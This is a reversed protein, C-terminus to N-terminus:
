AQSLLEIKWKWVLNLCLHWRSFEWLNIASPLIIHMAWMPFLSLQQSRRLNVDEGLYNLLGKIGLLAMHCLIGNYAWYKTLRYSIQVVLLDKFSRCVSPMFNFAGGIHSLQNVVGGVKPVNESQLKLNLNIDSLLCHVSLQLNLWLKNPTYGIHILFLFIKFAKRKENQVSRLRIQSMRWGQQHSKCCM